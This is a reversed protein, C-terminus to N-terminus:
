ILEELDQQIKKKASLDSYNDLVYEFELKSDNELQYDDNYYALLNKFEDDIRISNTNIGEAGCNTTIVPVCNAMAEIVKGKIGAGFRLPVVVLKVTNYLENLEEDSVFGRIIINKSAVDLLEQPPYSGAVILKINPMAKILKPFIDKIFWMIGDYNPSHRFGGVFLLGERKSPVYNKYKLNSYLYPQLVKANLEQNIKHIEDIENISPYYILDVKNFIDYEIKKWKNAENLLAEDNKLLYERNIRIYHLDHGYYIFKANTCTNKVIDIFKNTIHPRNFFVYNIYKGNQNLWEKYHNAYYPGYLVEVGLKQLEKTYPEHRYFNEGIFKVNYGLESLLRLYAFVTRSGADKDYQPVYHDIMLLTKKNYSRDRATFVNEANPYHKELTTKWKNYFKQSNEVQYKKVGQTVDTGNSIGEYHIVVSFPDYIVEYGNKRVEFALDSDECYAPCFTKDFGGIQEWLSKRIMIAAGSIYDVPKRYNYESNEPNSKYGYNWASGDKWVIGGAEQLEGNPYILKSGVMGIKSNYEITELLSKLWNKQVNTDNNLFLLYIGKAKRAANNCNLLFRTNQKNKNVKINKVYKTINTTEDTSCDDGIIVEYDIEKTNKIISEICGYTYSFQNYVPIIISVIPNKCEPLELIPYNERKEMNFLEINDNIKNETNNEKYIEIRELVRESGESKSYKFFKKINTINLHKIFWIPHRISKAILKIILKRKSGYPFFFDRIKFYKLSMKYTTSEKIHNLEDNIQNKDSIMNEIKINLTEITNKKNNIETIKNEIDSSLEDIRRTLYQNEKEKNKIDEHLFSIKENLVNIIKNKDNIELDLNKGWNSLKDIHNNLRKVENDATDIANLIYRENCSFNNNENIKNSFFKIMEDFQADYKADLYNMAKELTLNPNKNKNFYELLNRYIVFDRPVSFNVVWEYDIIFFNNKQIIINSFVLDINSVIFGKGTYDIKGFYNIFDNTIKFDTLNSSQNVISAYIDLAKEIQNDNLLDEISCGDIYPFKLYDDYIEPKVIKNPYYTNLLNYSDIMKLIHKNDYIGKKLVFLKNKEKVIKTEIQYEKKRNNTNKSYIALM